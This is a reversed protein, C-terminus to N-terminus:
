FQVLLIKKQSGSSSLITYIMWLVLDNQAEGLQRGWSRRPRWNRPEACFSESRSKMIYDVVKEIKTKIELKELNFSVTVDEDNHASEKECITGFDWKQVFISNRPKIM